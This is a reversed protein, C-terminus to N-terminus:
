SNHINKLLSSIKVSYIFISPQLKTNQSAFHFLHTQQFFSQWYKM